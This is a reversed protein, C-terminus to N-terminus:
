ISNPVESMVPNTIREAGLCKGEVIHCNPESHLIRGGARM